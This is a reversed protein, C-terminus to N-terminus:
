LRGTIWPQEFDDSAHNIFRIFRRFVYDSTFGDFLGVAGDLVDHMNTIVEDARAPCRLADGQKAAFDISDPTPPTHPSSSSASSIRTVTTGKGSAIAWSCAPLMLDAAGMMASCHSCSLWAWSRARQPAATM